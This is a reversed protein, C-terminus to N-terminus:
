SVAIARHKETPPRWYATGATRGGGRAERRWGGGAGWGGGVNGAWWHRCCSAKVQFFHTIFEALCFVDLFVHM